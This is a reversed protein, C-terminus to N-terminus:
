KYCRFANNTQGRWLWWYKHQWRWFGGGFGGTKNGGGGFGGTKNGGGGFGGTNGGGFGGTNNGFGGATTAELAVAEVLGGGTDAGFGSNTGFGGAGSKNGFGSAGFLHKLPHLIELAVEM